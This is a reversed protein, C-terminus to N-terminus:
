ATRCAGTTRAPGLRAVGRRIMGVSRKLLETAGGYLLPLPDDFAVARRADSAITFTLWVSMPLGVSRVAALDDLPKSWRAGARARPVTRRPRGVLDEYVLAPLNVGAVAGLHHWLNFRPNVELLCLTGDPRRKFDFKAVGKLELRDVLARGLARVDAADTTELATSHGYREPYTRIKRGTFEGVIAGRDDVYAHYSEVRSEPGPILEQLLVPVQAEVLRASLERWSGPGDVQLAKQPGAVPEWQGTRRTLPKVIFPFALELQSSATRDLPEIMQSRPVPLGLREALCRFRAKDVLGEVLAPEPIVFRFADALRLRHRSVLLLEHDGEYYLVPRERLSSGFRLLADVLAEPQEWADAWDVAARVFRSLRKPAGRRAVVACRVGALGLPRVLDMDGM